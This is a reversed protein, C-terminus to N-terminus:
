AYQIEYTIKLKMTSLLLRSLNILIDNNDTKVCRALM